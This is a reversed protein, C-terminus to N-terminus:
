VVGKAPSSGRTRLKPPPGARPARRDHARAEVESSRPGTARAPPGLQGFGSFSCVVIAPNVERLAEFGVGLSRLTEAASSMTEWDSKSGMIIAVLLTADSM